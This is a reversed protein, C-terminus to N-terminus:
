EEIFEEDTFSDEPKENKEFSSNTKIKGKKESDSFNELSFTEDDTLGGSSRRRDGTYPSLRDGVNGQKQNEPLSFANYSKGFPNKKKSSAIVDDLSGFFMDEADTIHEDGFESKLFQLTLHPSDEEEEDDFDPVESLFPNTFIKRVTPSDPNETTDIQEETLMSLLNSPKGATCPIKSLNVASFTENRADFEDKFDTHSYNLTSLSDAGQESSSKAFRDLDVSQRVVRCAQGEDDSVNLDETSTNLGCDSGKKKSEGNNDAFLMDCSDGENNNGYSVEETAVRSNCDISLPAYKPAEETDSIDFDEVESNRDNVTPTDDMESNAADSDKREYILKSGEELADKMTISDDM